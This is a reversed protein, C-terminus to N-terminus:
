CCFSASIEECTNGNNTIALETGLDAIRRLRVISIIYERSVDNKSSGCARVDCFVGNKIYVIYSISKVNQNSVYTINLICISCMYSIEGLASSVIIGLDRLVCLLVTCLLTFKFATESNFKFRV